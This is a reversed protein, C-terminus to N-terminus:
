IYIKLTDSADVAKSGKNKSRAHNNRYVSLCLTSVVIKKLSLFIVNTLYKSFLLFIFLKIELEEKWCITCMRYSFVYTCKEWRISFWNRTNIAENAYGIFGRKELFTTEIFKLCFSRRIKTLLACIKYLTCM